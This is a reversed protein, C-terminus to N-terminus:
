FNAIQPGSFRDRFTASQGFTRYRRQRERLVSDVSRKELGGLATIVAERLLIAAADPDTEASPDPEPVIADVIGAELCDQATIKLKAALESARDADRYLIAAAGEPAIVSYIAHQQMLVRDAVAIALAGGSGGEGIIAAITRTPLESMLALSEAIEGALGGIESEIGPFAGPTDVLTLVPLKQQAALRMIRQAKRFGSPVPRGHRREEAKAGRGREFGVVAIPRDALLGFGAVVAPDDGSEHDGHLEVFFDLMREIYDVSTPRGGSRAIQVSSWADTSLREQESTNVSQPPILPESRKDLPLLLSFLDSLYGRLHVRDVIDDIIGHEYLFEATHTGSPLSEGLMQEVM